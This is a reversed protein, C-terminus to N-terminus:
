FGTKGEFLPQTTVIVFCLSPIGGVKQCHHDHIQVTTYEYGISYVEGAYQTPQILQQFKEQAVEGASRTQDKQFTTNLM